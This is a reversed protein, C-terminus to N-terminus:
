GDVGGPRGECGTIEVYDVESVRRELRSVFGRRMQVGGSLLGESGMRGMRRVRIGLIGLCLVAFCLLAFCLLAFYASPFFYILAVWRRPARGRACAGPRVFACVWM